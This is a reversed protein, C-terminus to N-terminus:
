LSAPLFSESRQMWTGPGLLRPFWLRLTRRACKIWATESKMVLMQPAIQAPVTMETLVVSTQTKWAEPYSLFLLSKYIAFWMNIVLKGLAKLLEASLVIPCEERRTVICQKTIIHGAMAHLTSDKQHQVNYNQASIRNCTSSFMDTGLVGDQSGSPPAPITIHGDSTLTPAYSTQTFGAISAQDSPNMENDPAWERYSTVVTASLVDSGGQVTDAVDRDVGQRLKAARLKRYELNRRRKTIARGLRRVLIEDAQPYKERVHRADYIEYATTNAHRSEVRMDHPAPKRTLMSMEFLCNIITAVNRRLQQIETQPSENESSTEGLSEMDSDEGEKLLVSADQLRERLQRLLEIIQNRIHSSDRLRFELSSQHTQHAGINAAWIRLRGREDDWDQVCLGEPKKEDLLEIEEIFKNFANRCALLSSSISVAM